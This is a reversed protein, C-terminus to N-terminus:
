QRFRTAAAPGSVRQTPLAPRAVSPKGVVNAVRVRNRGSEKAEYLARDAAEELDTLTHGHQPHMAVGISVSLGSIVYPAGGAPRTAPVRLAEVALRVREAVALGEEHSTNPLLAMVEEGGKRCLLDRSRTHTRLTDAFARLVADGNPHGHTDNVKKFWDLDLMLAVNRPEVDLLIQASEDFGRRNLLKTLADHRADLVANTLEKANRTWFIAVIVLLVVLGASRIPQKEM